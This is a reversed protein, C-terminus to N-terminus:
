PRSQDGEVGLRREAQNARDLIWDGSFRVFAIGTPHGFLGLSIQLAGADGIRCVKSGLRLKEDKVVNAVIVARVAREM